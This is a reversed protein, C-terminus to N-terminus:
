YSLLINTFLLLSVPEYKFKVQTNFRLVKEGGDIQRMMAAYPNAGNSRYILRHM